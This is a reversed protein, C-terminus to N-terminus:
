NWTSRQHIETRPVVINWSQYIKFGGFLMRSLRVSINSTFTVLSHTVFQMKSSCPQLKRVEIRKAMLKDYKYVMTFSHNMRLFPQCLHYRFSTIFSMVRQVRGPISLDMSCCTELSMEMCDNYHVCHFMSMCMLCQSLSRYIRNLRTFPQHISFLNLSQGSQPSNVTTVAGHPNM